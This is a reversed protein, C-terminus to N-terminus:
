TYGDPWGCDLCETVHWHMPGPDERWDGSGQSHVNASECEPCYFWGPPPGAREALKAAAKARLETAAAIAADRRPNDLHTKLHHRLVNLTFAPEYKRALATPGEGDRLARNIEDRDPHDCVACAPYAGYGRGVPMGLHKRRHRDLMTFKLGNGFQQRVAEVSNEILALDIEERQPHICAGCPRHPPAEIGAARSWKSVANHSVGLAKAVEM